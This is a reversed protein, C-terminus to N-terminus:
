ICQSSPNRRIPASRRMPKRTPPSICSNLKSPHSRIRLFRLSFYMVTSRLKGELLHFPTVSELMRSNRASATSVPSSQQMRRKSFSLDGTSPLVRIFSKAFTFFIKRALLEWQVIVGANVRGGHRTCGTIENLASARLSLDVTFSLHFFNSSCVAPTGAKASMSSHSFVFVRM